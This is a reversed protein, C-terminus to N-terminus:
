GRRDLRDKTTLEHNQWVRRLGFGLLAEFRDASCILAASYEDYERDPLPAVSSQNSRDAGPVHVPFFDFV